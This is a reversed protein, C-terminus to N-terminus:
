PGLVLGTATNAASPTPPRFRYVPHASRHAASQPWHRRGHGAGGPKGGSTTAPRRQRGRSPPGTDRRGVFAKRCPETDGLADTAPREGVRPLGSRTKRGSTREVTSAPRVRGQEPGAAGLPRGGSAGSPATTGSSPRAARRHQGCGDDERSCVCCPQGSTERRSGDHVANCGHGVRLRHRDFSATASGAV